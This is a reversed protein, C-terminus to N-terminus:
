ITWLDKVAQVPTHFRAAFDQFLNGSVSLDRQLANRKRAADRSTARGVSDM